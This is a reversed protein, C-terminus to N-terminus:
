AVKIYDKLIDGTSRNDANPAGTGAAVDDLNVLRADLSFRIKGTNQPRTAHYHAGAIFVQGAAPCSFGVDTGPAFGAASRPYTATMGSDQKQWGIKLDPGDKIWDDYNFVESDNPVERDFYDPYIAFTEHEELDDLPTWYVILSQPHAYWTDRHPFYVPAAKKNLHGDPCIVRLRLPDFVTREPDFGNEELIASLRQHCEEELYLTRRLKGIRTFFSDEDLALHAHRIDEVGLIERIMGKAYHILEQSGSCPPVTYVVGDYIDHRMTANEAPIDNKFRLM